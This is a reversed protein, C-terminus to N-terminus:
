FTLAMGFSLASIFSNNRNVKDMTIFEDDYIIYPHTYTMRLSAIFDLKTSPSLSIRYGGGAKGTLIEQLPEKLGIGSGLDIYTFWRDSMHENGFFYTGRVSIPIAKHLNYIGEIGLYMAINWNENLNYGFNLYAEANSHYIFENDSDNIRYGDQTYFNNHWGHQITAVYSWEVGMTFRPFMTSQASVYINFASILLLILVVKKKM